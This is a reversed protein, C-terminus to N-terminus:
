SLIDLVYEYLIDLDSDKGANFVNRGFAEYLKKSFLDYKKEEIYEKKDNLRSWGNLFVFPYVVFAIVRANTLNEIIYVTRQIYDISNDINVCLIVIDPQSGLLFEMSKVGMYGLNTYQEPASRSQGGVIIIDCEKYDIRNLATNVENILQYDGKINKSGYGYSIVEDMGFLYGEPETALQGVIYSDKLFRKRLELQLTFKGQLSSTGFVGLVPSSINYMKGKKKKELIFRSSPTSIKLGKEEFMKTFKENEEDLSYVNLNNECCFELINNKGHGMKRETLKDIHGLILTDINKLHINEISKIEFFDTKVANSVSKGIRGMYKDSYVAILDFILMDSYRILSSIEKNYPYVAAKKIWNLPAEQNIANDAEDSSNRFAKQHIIDLAKEMTFNDSLYQSLFGTVYAASFSNGMRLAYGDELWAVRHLGGKAYVDTLEFNGLIFDTNKRCADTGEVGITFDYAAPYSIAGMNDFASVIVNDREYLKKCINYLENSKYTIGLSLHIISHNCNNKILYNFASLLHSEEAYLTRDFIQIIVTEINKNMSYIISAIATGHGCFDNISETDYVVNYSNYIQLEKLKQHSKNIGSDIIVVKNKM